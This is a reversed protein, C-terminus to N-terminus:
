PPTGKMIDPVPVAVRGQSRKKPFSHNYAMRIVTVLAIVFLVFVGISFVFLTLGDLFQRAANFWEVWTM